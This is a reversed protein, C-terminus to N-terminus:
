QKRWSLLLMMMVKVLKTFTSQLFQPTYCCRILLHLPTSHSHSFRMLKVVSSERRSTRMRTKEKINDDESGPENSTFLLKRM